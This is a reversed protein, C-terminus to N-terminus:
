KFVEPTFTKTQVHAANGSLSAFFIGFLSHAITYPVMESEPVSRELLAFPLVIIFVMGGGIGLLGAIFGGALGALSLLFQDM